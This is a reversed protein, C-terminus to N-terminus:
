SQLLTSQHEEYPEFFNEEQRSDREEQIAGTM